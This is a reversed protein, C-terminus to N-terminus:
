QLTDNFLQSINPDNCEATVRTSWRKLHIKNLKPPQGKNENSTEQSEEIKFYNNRVTEKTTRWTEVIKRLHKRGNQHGTTVGLLRPSGVYRQPPPWPTSGPSHWSPWRASRRRTCGTPWCSLSAWSIRHDALHPSSIPIVKQLRNWFGRWRGDHSLCVAWWKEM